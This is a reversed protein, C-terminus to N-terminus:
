TPQTKRLSTHEHSSAGSMLGSWHGDLPIRVRHQERRRLEWRDLEIIAKEIHIRKLRLHLTWQEREGASMVQELKIEVISVSVTEERLITSKNNRSFNLELM